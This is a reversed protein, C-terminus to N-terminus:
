LYQPLQLLVVTSRLRDLVVRISREILSNQEHTYPSSTSFDIGKRALWAQLQTNIETGRDFHFKRPYKGWKNKLGRFLGKIANFVTPGEKNPM